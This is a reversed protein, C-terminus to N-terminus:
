DLCRCCTLCPGAHAQRSWAAAEGGWGWAQPRVQRGERRGGGGEEEDEEEEEESGEGGGGEEDDSGEEEESDM